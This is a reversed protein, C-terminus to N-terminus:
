LERTASTAGPALRAKQDGHPRRSSTTPPARLNTTVELVDGQTTGGGFNFHDEVPTSPPYLPPPTESLARSVKSSVPVDWRLARLRTRRLVRRPLSSRDRTGLNASQRVHRHRGKCPYKQNACFPSPRYICWLVMCGMFDMCSWAIPWGASAPPM